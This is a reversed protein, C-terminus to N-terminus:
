LHSEVTRRSVYLREGIERAPLGAAALIAVERERRTLPVPALDAVLGPTAATECAGRWETALRSWHAAMRPDGERRAADAASYAAEAAWLLAGIGALDDAAAGLAEAKGLVMARIHDAMAAVLPGQYCAAAETAREQCASAGGLRALDYLCFLEGMADGVSRRSSAGEMLLARAAEPDQNAICTWARARVLSAGFLDAPHSEHQDLRELWTSAATGDGSTAHTLALAILAWQRMGLHGTQAFSAESLRMARQASRLRGRTFLVWGHVLAALGIGDIEGETRTMQMLRTAETEAEFLRGADALAITRGVGLVRMTILAIQEGLDAYVALARDCVAVADQARGTTRYAHTLAMTAQILVRDPPRDIFPEAIEISETCRGQAALLLARIASAEESWESPGLAEARDLAKAAAPEDGRKWFHTIATNLEVRIKEDDTAATRAWAPRQEAAAATDGLEYYIDALLEGTDFDAQVQWATEALDRALDMDHSFRATRAAHMLPAHAVPMQAAVSWHALRLHDGSRRAGRASLAEVLDRHVQRLQLPSAAARLVEGVLPQLRVVVRRRDQTTSLMRSADLRALLEPTVRAPLEGPGVPEGVAVILLATAADDDLDGIRHRVFDVLRPATAPVSRISAAGGDVILNASERAAILVERIFLANGRTMDWVLELSLADLPSGVIAEALEAVHERSLPALEVREVVGDQWLRAVPEPALTSSTQSALVGVDGTRVLQNILVASADDLHHVDDVVIVPRRGNARDAITGRLVPLIPLGTTTSKAPMLQALSGLPLLASGPTATVMIPALRSTQLREAVEALVRSKGVGDDGIVLAGTGGGALLATLRDVEITRGTIEWDHQM